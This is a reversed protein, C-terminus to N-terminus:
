RCLQLLKGPLLSLLSMSQVEMKEKENTKKEEPEEKKRNRNRNRNATERTKKKGTGQHLQLRFQHKTVFVIAPLAEKQTKKEKDNEGGERCQSRQPPAARTPECHRSRRQLRLHCHPLATGGVSSGRRKNNGRNKGKATGNRSRRKKRRVTVEGGEKKGRLTEAV